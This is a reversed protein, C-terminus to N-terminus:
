SACTVQVEDAFSRGVPPFYAEPDSQDAPAGYLLEEVLTYAAELDAPIIQVSCDDRGLIQVPGVVRYAVYYNPDYPLIRLVGDAMPAAIPRIHREVFRGNVYDMRHDRKAGLPLVQGAQMVELDGAFDPPWQAAQEQLMQQEQVSLALDGDPDLGLDSILLLSFYDDYHWDLQVAAGGSADFVVAVTVDVFIHPHAAVSLPAGFAALCSLVRIM